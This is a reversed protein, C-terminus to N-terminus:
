QYTPRLGDRLREDMVRERLDMHILACVVISIQYKYWNKEYYRVYMITYYRVVAVFYSVVPDRRDDM